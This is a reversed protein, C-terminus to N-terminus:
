WKGEWVEAQGNGNGVPEQEKLAVEDKGVGTGFARAGVKRSSSSGGLEPM